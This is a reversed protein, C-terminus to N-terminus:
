SNRTYKVWCEENGHSTAVKKYVHYGISFAWELASNYNDFTCIDKGEIRVIVKGTSNKELFANKIM